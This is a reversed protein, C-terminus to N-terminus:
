YVGIDVNLANDLERLRRRCTIFGVFEQDEDATAFCGCM